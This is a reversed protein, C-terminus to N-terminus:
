RFLRLTWPAAPLLMVADRAIARFASKLNPKAEFVRRDTDGWISAVFPCGISQSLRHAVLGDVTFKHAHILDPVIGRKALDELVFDALQSLHHSLRLGYPPAGYAIALHGDGFPRAAIGARWSVRNLSYVINHFNSASEILSPVAKTKGPVLPDPFDATIHVLIKM